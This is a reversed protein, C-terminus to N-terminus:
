CIIQDFGPQLRDLEYLNMDRIEIRNSDLGLFAFFERTRSNTVPDFSVGLVRNGKQYAAYSLFGNGCGADLTRLDGERLYRPLKRYRERAHLDLGPYLVRKAKLRLWAFIDIGRNSM